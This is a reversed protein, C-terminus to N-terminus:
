DTIGVGDIVGCEILAGQYVDPYLELTAIGVHGGM